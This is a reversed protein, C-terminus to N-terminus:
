CRYKVMDRPQDLVLLESNVLDVSKLAILKIHAGIRDYLKEDVRM